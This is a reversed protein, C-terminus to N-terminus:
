RTLVVWRQIWILVLNWTVIGAFWLNLLRILRVKGRVFVAIIILIGLLKAVLLGTTPGLDMLRAVVINAEQAGIRIGILTTIVDLAQLCVFVMITRSSLEQKVVDPSNSHSNRKAMLTAATDPIGLETERDVPLM